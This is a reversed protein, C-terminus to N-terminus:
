GLINLFLKMAYIIFGIGVLGNIPKYLRMYINSAIKTSFITAFIAHGSFSSIGAMISFIVINFLNNTLIPFLSIIALWTTMMKPNTVLVIFAKRFALRKNINELAIM